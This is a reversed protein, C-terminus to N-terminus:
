PHVRYRVVSPLDDENLERLWVHTRTAAVINSRSPLMGTHVINGKEDLVLIGPRDPSHRITLWTKGDTAAVVGAVPSMVPPIRDAPLHKVRDPGVGRALVSDITSRSLPIGHYPLSRNFTVNGRVDTRTITFTGGSRLLENIRVHTVSTGDGSFAWFIPPGFAVEWQPNGYPVRALITRSGGPAVAVAIVDLEQKKEGDAPLVALGMFTGDLSRAHPTFGASFNSSASSQQDLRSLAETRILKGTRTFYSIRRLDFDYVWLTDSSWARVAFQRGFEGPGGGRRGFSALRRGSSDYIRITADRTSAISVDGRTSVQIGSVFVFDEREGDLRLDEKLSLMTPVPQGNAQQFSSLCIIVGLSFAPLLRDLTQLDLICTRMVTKFLTPM